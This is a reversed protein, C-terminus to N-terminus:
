HPSASARNHLPMHGKNIGQGALAKIASRNNLIGATIASGLLDETSAYGAISRTSLFEFDSFTPVIATKPITIQVSGALGDATKRWLVIPKCHGNDLVSQYAAYTFYSPDVGGALLVPDVGNFFGKNNTIARKTFCEAFRYALMFQSVEANSDIKISVTADIEFHAVQETVVVNCESEKAANAAAAGISPEEVAYPLHRIEGNIRVNPIVGIPLGSVVAVGAFPLPNNIGNFDTIPRGLIALRQEVTKDRLKVSNQPIESRGPWWSSHISPMTVPSIVHALGTLMATSGFMMGLQRASPNGLRILESHTAPFQHVRGVTGYGVPLTLRALWHLKEDKIQIGSHGSFWLALAADQARWDGSMGMTLRSMTRAIVSNTTPNSSIKSDLDKYLQKDLAAEVTVTRLSGDNSLIRVHTKWDESLQAQILPALGEAVTNIMNPGMADLVDITFQLVAMGPEISILDLDRVGGGRGVQRPIFGNAADILSSKNSLIALRSGEFNSQTMSVLQIQGTMLSDTATGTVSITQALTSVDRARAIDQLSHVPISIQTINSNLNVQLPATYFRGVGIVNEILRDASAVTLVSSRPSPPVSSSQRGVWLNIKGSRSLGCCRSLPIRM